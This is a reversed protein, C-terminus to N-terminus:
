ELTLEIDNRGMDPQYAWGKKECMYDVLTEPTRGGHGYNDDKDEHCLFEHTEELTKRVEETSVERPTYVNIIKTENGDDWTFTLKCKHRRTNPNERSM